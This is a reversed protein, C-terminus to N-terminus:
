YGTSKRLHYTGDDEHKLTLHYEDNSDHSHVKFHAIHETTNRRAEDFFAKAGSEGTEKLFALAKHASTSSDDYKVKFGFLDITKDM